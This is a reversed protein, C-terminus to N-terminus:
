TDRNISTPSRQDQFQNQDFMKPYVSASHWIYSWSNELRPHFFITFYSQGLKITMPNNNPKTIIAMKYTIFPQYGVSLNAHCYHSKLQTRIIGPEQISNYPFSNPQNPSSEVCYFRRPSLKYVRISILTRLMDWGPKRLTWGNLTNSWMDLHMVPNKRVGQDLIM